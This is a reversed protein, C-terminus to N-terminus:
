SLIQSSVVTKTEWFKPKPCAKIADSNLENQQIEKTRRTQRVETPVIGEWFTLPRSLHCSQM